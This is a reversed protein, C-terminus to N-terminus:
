TGVREAFVDEMYPVATGSEDKSLFHECSQVEGWLILGGANCSSELWIISSMVEKLQEWSGVGIIGTLWQIQEVYWRQHTTGFASMGGIMLVWILLEIMPMWIELNMETLELEYRLLHALRPLPETARPVPFLVVLSYAILGLRLAGYTLPVDQLNHRMEETTPLSMIHHQIINRFELVYELDLNPLYGQCLNELLTNYRQVTSFVPGIQQPLIFSLHAHPSSNNQAYGQLIQVLLEGVEELRLYTPLPWLPRM